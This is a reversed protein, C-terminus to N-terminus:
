NSLEETLQNTIEVAQDHNSIKNEAFLQRLEDLVDSLKEKPLDPYNKILWHGDVGLDKKLDPQKESRKKKYINYMEEIHSLDPTTTDIEGSPTKSWAAHADARHLELLDEFAPHSMFTKARGPRMEPLYAISLHYHIMWHIDDILKNSFNLRKLIKQTIKAGEAFHRDFRIRDGTVEAPKYTPPKGIDHLLTAWALRPTVKDPLYNVSLISHRYVDGESHYHEPQPTEKGAVLEPLVVDLVGFLDLDQLAENRNPDILMRTLEIRLRDTAIKQVEGNAVSSMIAEFTQKDYKFGLRNKIRIARVIRLPDEYIRIQPDGIFRVTKKDLDELGRPLDILFDNIPDLALANITFDRRMVDDELYKFEVKTQSRGLHASIDKRYTTIEIPRLQDQIKIKTRTVGYAQAPDTHKPNEFQEIAILEQPSANTVLDYDKPEFDLLLDRVAGGVIYAEFGATQLIRAAKEAAMYDLESTM